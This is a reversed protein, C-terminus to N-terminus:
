RKALWAFLFESGLISFNKTNGDGRRRRAGGTPGEGRGGVGGEGPSDGEDEGGSGKATVEGEIVLGFPLLVELTWLSRLRLRRGWSAAPGTRAPDM